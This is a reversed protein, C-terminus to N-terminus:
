LAGAGRFRESDSEGALLGCYLVRNILAPWTLPAGGSAELSRGEGTWLRIPRWFTSMCLTVSM